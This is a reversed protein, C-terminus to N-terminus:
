DLTRKLDWGFEFLKLELGEQYFRRIATQAEADFDFAINKTLYEKAESFTLGEDNLGPWQPIIQDLNQQNRAKLKEFEPMWASADIGPRAAWVAYVFPLSTWKTWLRGLDICHGGESKWLNRYKLARTGILLFAEGPAPRDPPSWGEVPIPEGLQPRVGFCRSLLVQSLVNSTRSHSDPHLLTWRDPPDMSIMLVSKVPGHSGIMSSGVIKWDPHDFVGAVPAMGIDLDGSEMQAIMRSPPLSIVALSADPRSPLRLDALGHILPLMNLYPVIGVRLPAPKSM